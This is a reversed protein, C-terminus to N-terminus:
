NAPFDQYYTCQLIQLNQNLIWTSEATFDRCTKTTSRAFKISKKNIKNIVRKTEQVSIQHLLIPRGVKYHVIHRCFLTWMILFHLRHNTMLTFTEFTKSFEFSNATSWYLKRIQDFCSKPILIDFCFDLDRYNTM